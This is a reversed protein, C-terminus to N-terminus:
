DEIKALMRSKGTLADELTPNLSVAQDYAKLAALYRSTKERVWGLRAWWRANSPNYQLATSFAIDAHNFKVMRVFLEGCLYFSLASKSGEPFKALYEQLNALAAENEGLYYQAEGLAQVLRPDKFMAYGRQAIDKAKAYEKLANLSWALGIYADVDQPNKKIAQPALLAVDNHKGEQSMRLLDSGTMGSPVNISSSAAQSFLGSILVFLFLIEFAVIRGTMRATKNAAWIM